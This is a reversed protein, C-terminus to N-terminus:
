GGLEAIRDNLANWINPVNTDYGSAKYEDRARILEALGEDKRGEAIDIEGLDQLAQGIASHNELREAWALVPRLWQKAEVFNGLMRYTMGISYDAFLKSTEDSFRWHFDRAKLYCDLASDYQQNDYFTAGLNNWLPGLWHEEGGSEAAEIGKHGWEIQSDVSDAVIAMMNAADIMRGWLANEQCFDFMDTFTQRAAPLSDSKWEFRGRVGLFRSWGMPDTMTAKQSAKALYELGEDKRGTALFCRAIQALAETEISYNFEERATDLVQRYATLAEAYQKKKFISDAQQLLSDASLEQSSMNGGKTRLDIAAAGMPLICLAAIVIFSRLM